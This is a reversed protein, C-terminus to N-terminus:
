RVLVGSILVARQRAGLGCTASCVVRWGLMLMQNKCQFSVGKDLLRRLLSVEASVVEHGRSDALSVIGVGMVGARNHSEHLMIGFVGHAATHGEGISDTLLQHSLEGAPVKCEAYQCEPLRLRYAQYVGKLAEGGEGTFGQQVDVIDDDQLREATGADGARHKLFYHRNRALAIAAFEGQFDEGAVPRRFGEVPSKPECRVLQFLIAAGGFEPLAFQLSDAVKIPVSTLFGVATCRLGRMGNTAKRVIVGTNM